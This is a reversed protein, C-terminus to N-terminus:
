TTRRHGLARFTATTVAYGVSLVAFTLLMGITAETRALGDLTADAVANPHLIADWSNFRHIRGAYIAIACVAHVALALPWGRRIWGSAVAWAVLRRVADVYALFGIVLLATFAPLVVLVAVADNAAFRIDRRLHIVDTLVYAANPLLLIFAIAGMWWLRTPRATRNFVVVALAWPILALLLNWSMWPAAATVYRAVDPGLRATM